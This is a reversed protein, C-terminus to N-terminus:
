KETTKLRMVDSMAMGIILGLLFGGIVDTFYYQGFYLRPFAMLVPYSWVLPILYRFRRPMNLELLYAFCAAIAIHTAPYSLNRAMSSIIEEEVRQDQTTNRSSTITIQPIERAVLFKIYMALILIIVICTLFIVGTRRTRRVITLVISLFLLTSTDGFYSLNLMTANLTNNGHNMKINSLVLNDLDSTNGLIVLATLGGFISITLIFRPSRVTTRGIFAV